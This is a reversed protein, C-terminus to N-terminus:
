TYGKYRLANRRAIKLYNTIMAYNITNNYPQFNKIIGPRFLLFVDTFLRIKALVKNKAARESFLESLDGEVDEVLDPHCFWRLLRLPLNPPAPQSM